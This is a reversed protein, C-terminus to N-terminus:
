PLWGEMTKAALPFEYAIGDDTATMGPFRAAYDDSLLEFEVILQEAWEREKFIGADICCKILANIEARMLITAERHDRVAQCEPDDSTRTGLQWGAFVSRWKALRIAIRGAIVAVQEDSRKALEERTWESM